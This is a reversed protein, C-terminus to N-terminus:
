VTNKHFSCNRHNGSWIVKRGGKLYGVFIKLLGIPKVRHPFYLHEMSEIFKESQSLFFM